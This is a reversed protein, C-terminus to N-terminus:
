PGSEPEECAAAQALLAAALWRAEAATLGAWTGSETTVMAGIGLSIRRAPRYGGGLILHGVRIERGCTTRLGLHRDADGTGSITADM